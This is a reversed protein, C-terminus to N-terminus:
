CFPTEVGFSHEHVVCGVALMHIAIRTGVIDYM